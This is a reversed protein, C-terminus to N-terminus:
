MSEGDSIPAGLVSTSVRRQQDIEVHHFRIAWVLPCFVSSIMRFSNAAPAIPTVQALSPSASTSAAAPIRSMRIAVSRDLHPAEYTQQRDDPDVTGRMDVFQTGRHVAGAVRQPDHDLDIDAHVTGAHLGVLSDDRQRTRDGSV